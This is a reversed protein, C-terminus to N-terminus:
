WECGEECTWAMCGSMGWAVWGRRYADSKTMVPHVFGVVPHPAVVLVPEHDLVPVEVVALAHVEGAPVLAQPLRGDVVDVPVLAHGPVPVVHPRPLVQVVPVAV